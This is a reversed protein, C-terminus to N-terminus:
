LQEGLFAAFPAMSKISFEPVAELQKRSLSYQECVLSVRPTAAQSIAAVAHKSQGSFHVLMGPQPQIRRSLQDYKDYLLLEGGEMEPVQLYLVTVRWPLPLKPDYGRISHDVHREVQGAAGIVLVNLYYLSTQPRTSQMLGLFEGMEPFQELLEAAQRFIVSFGLTTAFRANLVNQQLYASALVAQSLAQLRETAMAQGQIEVFERPKFLLTM